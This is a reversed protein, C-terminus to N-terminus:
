WPGGFWELVMHVRHNLCQIRFNTGHILSIIYIICWCVCCSHHRLLSCRDHGACDGSWLIISAVKPHKPPTLRNGEGADRLPRAVTRYSYSLFQIQWDQKQWESSSIINYQSCFSARSCWVLSINHDLVLRKMKMRWLRSKIYFIAYYWSM